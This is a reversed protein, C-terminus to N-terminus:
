PALQRPCPRAMVAALARSDLSGLQSCLLAACRAMGCSSSSSFWWSVPDTVGGGLRQVANAATGFTWLRLFDGRCGESNWPSSYFRMGGGTAAQCRVGPTGDACRGLMGRSDGASDLPRV